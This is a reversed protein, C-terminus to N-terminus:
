QSNNEHGVNIMWSYLIYSNITNLLTIVSFIHHKGRPTIIIDNDTKNKSKCNTDTIHYNSKFM